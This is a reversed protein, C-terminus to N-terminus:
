AEALRRYLRLYRSVGLELSFREAALAHARARLADDTRLSVLREAATELDDPRMGGADILLEPHADILPDQDGVGRNLVTPLGVALYEPVKVPSSAIKSFRPEAFSVAADAGALLSGMETPPVNRVIVDDAAVGLRTLHGRLRESAARTFVAFRADRRRRIAAFLQAMQEECYWAGLNGAYALVFRDGAGLQERASARADADVRFRSLDVCCPIVELPTNPDVLGTEECLWRRLRDTLTVIGDARAFLTKEAAKIMRYRFSDRRWHGFDAYEDGLLGRCDFIFRAGPTLMTVARAVAAPLYSRAHVIKPQRRLARGLLAAFARLSESVKTALAHSHGRRSWGYSIGDRALASSMSAIESEAAAAPEFAVVDISWGGRALGVLYPVVQSRGLPETMGTHSVYLAHM